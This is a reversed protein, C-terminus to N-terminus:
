GHLRGDRRPALPGETRHDTPHVCWARESGDFAQAAAAMGPRAPVLGRALAGEWIVEVRREGPGPRYHHLGQRLWRPGRCRAGDLTGHAPEGDAIVSFREPYIVDFARTDPGGPPRRSLDAGLVRLAGIQVFHDNLFRRVAPPFERDDPIAFHTRTRAVDRALCDPLLGMALRARTVGELVLYSPRVRFVTEGKLDMIPEGPRTFRLVAALLGTEEQNADRWSAEALNVLGLGIVVATGAIATGWGPSVRRGQSRELRALVRNITAVVLLVLMPTSPLFDQATILPWFSEVLALYLAATLLFVARREREGSHPRAALYRRVGPVLIALALPFILWRYPESRWFGLGPVLNHRVTCDLLAALSHLRWFVLVIAGPVVAMGALVWGLTRWGPDPVLRGCGRRRLGLTVAVGLALAPIMLVTKLSTALTAGLLLGGLWARRATLKAGLLAVLSFLWAVMWLNDARFETSVLVFSPVAGTCVAAWCGVRHSWLHRGLLYIALTALGVLPLMLWRAFVIASARAGFVGVFPAMVLHFLPAHNDFLDRYQILGQTWGWAVHLHQPEDSDARHHLIYLVRTVLEALAAVSLSVVEGRSLGGRAGSGAGHARSESM